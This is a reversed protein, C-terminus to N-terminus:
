ATSRRGRGPLRELRGLERDAVKRVEEPLKLEALQERLELVEAQEPPGRRAGAPDGEAAPAPFVGAPGEGDGVAGAVPDELRARAGRGRPLPDGLRPAPAARRRGARAAGPAGRDPDACPGPSSTPSRARTTSTPRLSSSSPRIYPALGIIKAFLGQVNRTLAEVEPTDENTPCPRSSAWWTPITRSASPLSSGTCGASSSGCRGTPIKLMKHVVALTGVEYIDDWGPAEISADKATVLALLRDGSVVDDILRISREQGIALPMMSQPFVVTDKLALVPLTAPLEIETETTEPLEFTIDTM